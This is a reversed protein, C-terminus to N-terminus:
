PVLLEQEALFGPPQHEMHSCGQQSSGAARCSELFHYWRSCLHPWAPAPLKKAAPKALVANGQEAQSVLETTQPWCGQGRTYAFYPWCLLYSKHIQVALGDVAEPSSWLHLLHELLSLINLGASAANGVGGGHGLQLLMVLLICLM